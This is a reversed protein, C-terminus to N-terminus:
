KEVGTQGQCRGLLSFTAPRQRSGRWVSISLACVDDQRTAGDKFRGKFHDINM